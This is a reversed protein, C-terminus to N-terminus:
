IWRRLRACYQLYEHGFAQRLRSEEVPIVITNLYLVTGVLFLVPCIQNLIAAEGLYALILGVYMPNRSVQYPGNTILRSSLQGPVTTTRARRFIVQCWIAVVAGLGLLVFGMIELQRSWTTGLHLPCARQVLAGLLYSIVFVWPVPVRM